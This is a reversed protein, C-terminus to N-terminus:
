NEAKVDEFTSQMMEFVRTFLKINIDYEHDICFIDLFKANVEHLLTLTLQLPDIISKKDATPETIRDLIITQPEGFFEFISEFTSHSYASAWIYFTRLRSLGVLDEIDRLTVRQNGNFAITAWGYERELFDRGYQEEYVNVTKNIRDLLGADPKPFKLKEYHNLYSKLKKSQSRHHHNIYRIFLEKNEYEKMLLLLTATYEYLSRWLRLAGDQYGNLLMTFIQDSLRILYGYQSVVVTNNISKEFSDIKKRINHFLDYCLKIYGCYHEFSNKHINSISKQNNLHTEIFSTFVGSAKKQFYDVFKEDFAEIFQKKEENTLKEFTNKEDVKLISKLTNEFLLNVDPILIGPTKM